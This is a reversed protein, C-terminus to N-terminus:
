LKERRFDIELNGEAKVARVAVNGSTVGTTDLWNGRGPDRHAVHVRFSGDAELALERDTLFVQHHEWDGSEMFRTLLQVSLYRCNPVKGEIVLVEDDDLDDFWGGSYSIAPTPMVRVIVSPDIPPDVPVGGADVFSEGMRFVATSVAASLASLTTEAEVTELVYRGLAALRAEVEALTPLPPPGGYPDTSITYTSQVESPDRFYQRVMVETVDPELPLHNAGSPEGGLRVEFSGDEGFTMAEDDLNAAIRKGGGDDTGYLCFGLYAHDGRHGRIVYAHDASIIAADYVTGPNDGYMKRHATMWRTFAPHAPDGKEVLMETAISFIRTLHRYGEALERDNRGGTPGSVVDGAAALSDLLQRWSM